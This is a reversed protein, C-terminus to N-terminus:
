SRSKQVLCKARRNRIVRLCRPLKMHYAVFELAKTIVWHRRLLCSRARGTEALLSCMQLCKRSYTKQHARHYLGSPISDSSRAPLRRTAGIPIVTSLFSPLPLCHIRLAMCVEDWDSDTRHACQGFAQFKTLSACSGVCSRSHLRTACLGASASLCACACTSLRRLRCPCQPLRSARSGSKSSRPAWRRAPVAFQRPFAPCAFPHTTINNLHNACIKPSTLLPAELM